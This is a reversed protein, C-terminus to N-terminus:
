AAPPGLRRKRAVLVLVAGFGVLVLAIAVLGLIDGGTLPLSSNVVETSSVAQTPKAVQEALVTPQVTTTQPLVTPTPTCPGSCAQAGAPVFSGICLTAGLLAVCLAIRRIM